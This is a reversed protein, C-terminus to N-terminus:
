TNKEPLNDWYLIDGQIPQRPGTIKSGDRLYWTVQYEIPPADRSVPVDVTAVPAPGRNRVSVEKSLIKGGIHSFFTIVGHRVGRDSLVKGDGEINLTRYLVPSAVALISESREQWPHEIQIGGRFSWVDRAEYRLWADRDQDGKFGYIFEYRNGSQNFREPTIVVEDRTIEGSEHEKRMQVTVFNVHEGFTRTDQGDLTVLVERQKYVPDDILVARFVRPDHGYRGYLDGINESMVFHQREVRYRKLSLEFHGSSKLHRMRYSVLLGIPSKMGDKNANAGNKSRNGPGSRRNRGRRAAPPPQRGGRHSAQKGPTTGRARDRSATAPRQPPLAKRAPAATGQGCSGDMGTFLGKRLEELSIGTRNALFRMIKGYQNRYSEPLSSTDISGFCDFAQLTECQPYHHTRASRLLSDCQRYKSIEDPSAGAAAARPVARGLTQEVLTRLAAMLEPHRTLSISAHPRSSKAKRAPVSKMLRTARELNPFGGKEVERRVTADLPIEKFMLPLLQRQASQWIKDMEKDEGKVVLEIAGSRRLEQFLLDIDAGFWKYQGGVRVQHTSSIKSWDGKLTAQYPARIGDYETEFVLSIDPTTTKFSEWLVEAGERTLGISVAAKQGELVPAKGITAVRTFERNDKNFTTVLAFRAKRYLVPGALRAQKNSRKLSSRAKAVRDPTPGYTVLFHLIGGGGARTIGGKGSKELRAYKLFSFQPRGDKEAIRPQDPLYYYVNEDDYSPFCILDGCRVLEDVMVEQAHVTLGGLALPLLLAVKLLHESMPSLINLFPTRRNM